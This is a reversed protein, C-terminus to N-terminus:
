IVTGTGTNTNWDEVSIVLTIYGGDILKIVIEVEVYESGEKKFKELVDTIDVPDVKGQKGDNYEIDIYVNNTGRWGFVSFEALFDGPDNGEAFRCIDASSQPSEYIREAEAGIIGTPDNLDSGDKVRISSVVGDMNVTMNKVTGAYYKLVKIKILYVRNEPYVAYVNEEEGLTGPVVKLNDAGTTFVNKVSEYQNLSPDKLMAHMVATEWSATDSITANVYDSNTVLVKYTDPDVDKVFKKAPAKEKLYLEGDSDYLYVMAGEVVQGEPWIMYLTLPVKEPRLELSREVCSTSSLIMLVMFPALILTISRNKMFDSM